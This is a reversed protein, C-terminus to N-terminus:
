PDMGDAVEILGHAALEGLVNLVDRECRDVEVDYQRVIRDCIDGVRIPTSLLTWIQAGVQNLGYYMGTNLSLIVAEGALDSSVQGKTAVVVTSATIAPKARSPAM